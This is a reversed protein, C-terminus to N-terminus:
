CISEFLKARDVKGNLNRPLIQLFKYISPNMYEPLKESAIKRLDDEIHVDVSDIEIFAYLIETPFHYICIADNIKKSSMLIIEIESLEVRYGRIKLQFDARSKWFLINQPNRYLIDGSLFSRGLSPHHFFRNSKVGIYDKQSVGIGSIVAEGEQEISDSLIGNKDIFEIRMNPIVKGIPIPDCIEDGNKIKHYTCTVTTETPGYINHITLSCHTNIWAKVQYAFLQEGCFLLHRLAPFSNETLQRSQTLLNTVRPVLLAITVNKKLLEAPYTQDSLSRALVSSAGYMFPLFLNFVSLDFTIKSHSLFNDTQQISLYEAAWLLFNEVSEPRISIGKPKGTSGSTFLIYLDSSSKSPSFKLINELQTNIPFFSVRGLKKSSILLNVNTSFIKDFFIHEINASEIIELVRDIPDLYSLPVYTLGELACAYIICHSAFSNDAYIGIIKPTSTPKIIDLIQLRCSDIGNKFHLYSFKNDGEYIATNMPANTSIENIKEYIKQIFM